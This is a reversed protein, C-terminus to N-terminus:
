GILDTDRNGIGILEAAPEPNLTVAGNRTQADIALAVSSKAPRNRTEVQSGIPVPVPRSKRPRRRTEVHSVIPTGVRYPRRPVAPSVGLWHPAHGTDLPMKPGDDALAVYGPHQQRM